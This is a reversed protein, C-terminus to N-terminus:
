SCTAATSICTQLYALKAWSGRCVHSAGRCWAQVQIPDLHAVARLLLSKGVGSAGTIFLVEGRRLAFSVDHIIVREGFARRLGHVELLAEGSM